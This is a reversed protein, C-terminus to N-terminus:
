APREPLGDAKAKEILLPILPRGDNRVAGPMPTPRRDRILEVMYDYDENGMLKRLEYGNSQYFARSGGYADPTDICWYGMHGRKGDGSEDGGWSDATFASIQILEPGGDELSIENGFADTRDLLYLPNQTLTIAVLVDQWTISLAVQSVLKGTLRTPLSV